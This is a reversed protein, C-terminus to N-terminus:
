KKLVNTQSFHKTAKWIRYSLQYGEPLYVVVPTRSNYNLLTEKSLFVMQRKTRGSHDAMRTQALVGEKLVYYHLGWGELVKKELQGTLFYQNVMDTEEIRGVQLEIKLNAEKPKAPLEIVYRSMNKYTKPFAQLVNQPQSDINMFMSAIWFVLLAVLWNKQKTKKM